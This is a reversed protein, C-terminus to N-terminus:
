SFVRAQVGVASFAPDLLAALCRVCCCAFRAQQVGYDPHLHVAHHNNFEWCPIQERLVQMGTLAGAPGAYFWLAVFSFALRYTWM